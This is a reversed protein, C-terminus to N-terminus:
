TRKTSVEPVFRTIQVEYRCDKDANLRNLRSVEQEAQDKMGLVKVVTMSREPNQGDIPFDFRVLAYVHVLKSHPLDSM